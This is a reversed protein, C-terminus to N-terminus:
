APTLTVDELSIADGRVTAVAAGDLKLTSETGDANMELSLVPDPHAAPDYVIILKDSSADYDSIHAVGGDILWDHLVFDDDGEDGFGHDGSGLILTDSGTGGNLYDTEFDDVDESLGSIWDDGAGGDLVDSGAGGALTDDGLGGALWDDGAGGDLVDRGEGGLLTDAGEGGRLTDDGAHGALSDAGEGGDLLDDGDQGHVTDNGAGASVTDAGAGASVFDTGSGAQILDDGGRGDILDNGDLGEISDDGEGGSLIDDGSDGHMSRGDEVPDPIDDSVPDREDLPPLEDEPLDLLDGNGAEALEEPDPPADDQDPDEKGSLVVDAAVGAMLVGLLGLITLM